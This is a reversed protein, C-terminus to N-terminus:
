VLGARKARINLVALYATMAAAQTALLDKDVESLAEGKEGQLTDMLARSREELENMEQVLRQQWSTRRKPENLQKSLAYGELKWLEERAKTKADKVALEIGLEANFNEPSVCASMGIAVVFGDPLTAVALTTTTDSIRTTRYVLSDFLRNITAVEVKPGTGPITQQQHM